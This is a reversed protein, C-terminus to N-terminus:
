TFKRLFFPSLLVGWSIHTYCFTVSSGLLLQNRFCIFSFIFSIILNTPALVSSVFNPNKHLFVTSINEFFFSRTCFFTLCSNTFHKLLLDQSKFDIALTWARLHNKTKERKESLTLSTKLIQQKTFFHTLVCTLCSVFHRLYSQDNNVRRNKWLLDTVCIKLSNFIDPFYSTLSGILHM